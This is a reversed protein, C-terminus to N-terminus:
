RQLKLQQIVRRNNILIGLYFLNAVILCGISWAPSDQFISYCGVLLVATIISKMAILGTSGFKLFFKAVWFVERAGMRLADLTTLIDFIQLGVQLVALSLFILITM